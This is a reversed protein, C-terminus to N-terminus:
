AWGIFRVLHQREQILSGGSTTEAIRIMLIVWLFIGGYIISQRFELYIIPKMLRTKLQAAYYLVPLLVAIFYPLGHFM